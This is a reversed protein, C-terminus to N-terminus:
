VWSLGYLQFVFDWASSYMGLSWISLSSSTAKMRIGLLAEFLLNRYEGLPLELVLTTEWVEERKILEKINFTLCLRRKGRVFAQWFSSCSRSWYWFWIKLIPDQLTSPQLWLQCIPGSPQEEFNITLVIDGRNPPLPSPSKSPQLYYQHFSFHDKKREIWIANANLFLHEYQWLLPPVM